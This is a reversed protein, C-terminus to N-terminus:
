LLSYQPQLVYWKKQKALAKYLDSEQIPCTLKISFLSQRGPPTMSQIHPQPAPPSNM